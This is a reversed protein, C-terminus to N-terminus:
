GEGAGRYRDAWDHLADRPGAQDINLAAAILGLHTFAQPYNGLPAGDAAMEESFLGFPGSRACLAAFRRRAEDAKRDLALVSVMEFSSLLFAGEPEGIGDRTAVPDYRHVLFGAEGLEADIAEVTSRVRPDDADLFGLLPVHLLAADLNDAGYSQVFAGRDADYGHELLDERVADREARWRQVPAGDDAVLEALRVARDLGVWAMLKSHTWHREEDRVEWIGHDPRRWRRCLVDTIRRLVALDEATLGGTVEHWSFAADLVHGYTDIQHQDFAENGIRVPGSGRYGTLHDLEQEAVGTAGDVGLMPELRETRGTCTGLLFRLYRGAEEHHGLRLLALVTMAADRHWSYRYDWNRQGGIWEPLSTTPAALLAGTEDFLMGRLV